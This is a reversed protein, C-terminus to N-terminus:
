GGTQRIRVAAIRQKPQRLEELIESLKHLIECLLWDQEREHHCHQNWHSM